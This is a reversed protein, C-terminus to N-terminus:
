IIASLKAKKSQKETAQRSFGVDRPVSKNQVACGIQEVHFM